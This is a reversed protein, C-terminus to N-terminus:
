LTFYFTAGQGPSSEAWTRGQHRNIIRQVTALGIGTGPFDASSHLRQFAGFLKNAYRMDFGVGNDKVYFYRKRDADHDYDFVIEAQETKMTFKWANSLLNELLIRLLEMDGKVTLGPKITVKIRRHPDAQTLEDMVSRALESLNVSTIRLETRNLRSLKLLDDILNGMREAAAKVRRLYNQGDPSFVSSKDEEIAQTFGAIARLPARLDHSVSYSFSELEQNTAELQQSQVMLSQNLQKIEKDQLKHETIDRATAYLIKEELYPQVRWSIWRWSGDQHRYRNDFHLTPQGDALKRMENETAAVDDPHVFTIFPHKLLEESSYGLTKSFAPNIRKFYGDLGAICLMDVSLNFFREREYDIRRRELDSRHLQRASWFILLGLALISIITYLTVGLEAQFLGRREGLIRLGGLLLFFLMATPLLRRALLGGPGDGMAVAMLGQDPRAWLLGAALLLFLGASHLAIPIYRGLGYLWEVQYIYGLLATLALIGIMIAIYETPRRGHKINLDVGLLGLGLLVFLLATNPAMRNTRDGVELLLKDSFFWQDPRIMGPWAYGLLIILGILSVALACGMAPARNSSGPPLILRLSIGALIFTIATLPNMAVLGPLIRKLPELGTIWGLLVLAAVTLTTVSIGRVFWLSRIENPAPSDTRGVRNSYPPQM